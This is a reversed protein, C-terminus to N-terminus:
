HAHEGHPPYPDDLIYLWTGDPQQRVTDCFDGTFSERTGDPATQELSYDGMVAATRGRIKGDSGRQGGALVTQQPTVTLVPDSNFWDVYFTRIAAHGRIVSLDYNVIAAEPEHLAIIGDVDKARIREGLLQLLQAPTRAGPRAGGIDPPTTTDTSRSAASSANTTEAQVSVATGGVFSGAMLLIATTTVPLARKIGRMSM